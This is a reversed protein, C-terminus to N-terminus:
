ASEDESNPLPQWPGGARRKGHPGQRGNGLLTAVQAVARSDSVLVPVGQEACSRTVMARVQERWDQGASMGVGGVAVAAGGM